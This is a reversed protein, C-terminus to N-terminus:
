FHVPFTSHGRSEGCMSNALPDSPLAKPMRKPGIIKGGRAFKAFNGFHIGIKM